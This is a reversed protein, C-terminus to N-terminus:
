DYICMVGKFNIGNFSSAASITYAGFNNIKIWDDLEMQPLYINDFLIENSDCTCGMIRTQHQIKPNHKNNESYVIEPAPVLAHDYLKCNFLGYLSDGAIYDIRGNQRTRKGIIKTYFTAISEAFYRGPEAIFTCGLVPPFYM